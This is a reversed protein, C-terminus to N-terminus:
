AHGRPQPISIDSDPRELLERAVEALELAIINRLKELTRTPMRRYAEARQQPSNLGKLAPAVTEPTLM